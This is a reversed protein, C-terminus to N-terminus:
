SGHNQNIINKYSIPSTKVAQELIRLFLLGRSNSTRRNYRFVYEDICDQETKFMDDFEIQDAPYKM